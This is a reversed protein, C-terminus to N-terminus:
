FILLRHEFALKKSAAEVVQWLMHHIARNLNLVFM